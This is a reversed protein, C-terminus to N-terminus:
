RMTNPLFLVVQPFVMYIALCVLSVIVFPIVGRYVIGLNEGSISSIVFMNMGVPPTILSLNLTYVIIVAVWIPDLDASMIVPYAIPLTLVLVSTATMFCGLVFYISILAILTTLPSLGSVLNSVVFPLQSIVIFRSFIMAGILILFIMGVTKATTNLSIMFNQWSITRKVFGILFAGLVGIAGAETPTFVGGYIGGIVVIFLVLVAWIQRLSMVKERFSTVPGMPGLIPNRRCRVYILLMFAFMTIIGPTIGAIFLRGVSQQTLSAYLVFPISPPILSDLTGGAACAGVAISPSYNLRKMEPIAVTGMVTACAVPDGSIAGFAACGVVSAMALSGPQRGIWKYAASYLETSIGSYSAFEGMLIYLPFAAWTYTSAVSFSITRLIALGGEAGVLYICGAVGALGMALGIHMRFALLLVLIGIGIIGVSIESM